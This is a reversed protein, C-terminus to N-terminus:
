VLTLEGWPIGNKKTGEDNFLNATKRSQSVAQVTWEGDIGEITVIDDKAPAYGPDGANEEKAPEVEGDEFSAAKILKNFYLNQYAKGNDGKTNRVGVLCIPGRENLLALADPVQEVDEIEIDPLLWALLGLLEQEATPRDTPDQSVELGECFFTKNPEIGEYEGDNVTAVIRVIPVGEMKGKVPVSTQATVVASYTGDPIPAPGFSTGERHKFKKAESFTKKAKAVFAKAFMSQAM